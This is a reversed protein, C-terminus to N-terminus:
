IKESNYKCPSIGYEMKFGRRSSFINKGWMMERNETPTCMASEPVDEGFYAKMLEMSKKILVGSCFKYKPM